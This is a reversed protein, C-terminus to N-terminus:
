AADFMADANRDPGYVEYRRRDEAEAAEQDLEAEHGFHPDYEQDMPCSLPTFREWLMDHIRVMFTKVICVAIATPLAKAMPAELVFRMALLSVSLITLYLTTTKM